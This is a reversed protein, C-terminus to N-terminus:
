AMLVVPKVARGHESDEIAQNIQAFPYRTVLRDIPFRGQRYLEILTPIFVDPNSDGEVIGRLSRGATMLHIVDLTVETGLPSAGVFGCVGRPALAEVAQRLVPMSGTTEFSFNTGGQTGTIAMIRALVDESGADITHTAGLERALDLREPVLDIGIITAAGVLRAAMIASIGVSGTGFVALSAGPGLRLSNIIAGAGTQIGCALPAILDLPAEPDVKVVNREHCLAHTAFSSQGFFNGHITGGQGSLPSSGDPRCGAFNRGFFDHCYSPAHAQCSPCHGCSNFTMLVHDGIAVKSVAGGIREVVGAGEHGLVIPQPVPFAQDRMVMDTHCIGTAVLRVLIEGDRPPELEVEELSMPAHPARTVAAQIKM